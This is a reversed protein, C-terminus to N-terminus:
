EVRECDTIIVETTPWDSQTPLAAIADVVDMGELVEGFVAYGPPYDGDIDLFDNDVLNIFFQSTASNPDNTRAMALTGRANSLGNDSENAIPASTTRSARAATMGGGQIMFGSIVRHFVTADEGDDGDYFGSDVYALFNATTIPALTDELGIHIAGQSTTLLVETGPWGSEEVASDSDDSPTEPPTGCAFLALLPLVRLM